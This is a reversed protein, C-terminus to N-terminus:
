KMARNLNSIETAQRQRSKRRTWKRKPFPRRFGYGDIITTADDDRLEFAVLAVHLM